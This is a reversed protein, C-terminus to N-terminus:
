TDVTPAAGQPSVHAPDSVGAPRWGVFRAVVDLQGELEMRSPGLEYLRHHCAGTLAWWAHAVEEALTQDDLSAQLCLLQARVGCHELGPFRAGLLVLLQGELSQRALAAAARPLVTTLAPDARPGALLDRAAELLQRPSAVAVSM